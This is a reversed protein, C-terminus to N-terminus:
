DKNEEVNNEEPNTKEEETPQENNKEELMANFKAKYVDYIAYYVANAYATRGVPPLHVGDKYLYDSHGASIAEWDIIHLNPYKSAYAKLKANVNVNYDNTVTVWFVERSGALNMITDKVSESCDGNSGASIVIPDGLTGAASLSQLINRVHIGNRNMAADFYINPFLNKLNNEAGLMVSDGLAVVNLNRMLEKIQEEEGTYKNMLRQLEEQQKKFEESIDSSSVVNNQSQQNKKEEELRKEEKLREEELRKKEEEIRQEELIRKEELEILYENIETITKDKLDEVSINSNDNIISEIYSAKLSTINYDEAISKSSETIEQITIHCNINQETLKNNIIDLAKSSIDDNSLILYSNDFIYEENILIDVLKNMTNDLTDEKIATDKLINNSEDSLPEVKIVKDKKNLIVKISPSEIIFSKAEKNNITVNYIIFINTLILIIVLLIIIPIKIIKKM